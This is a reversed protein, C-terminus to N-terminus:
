GIIIGFLGIISLRRQQELIQIEINDILKEVREFIPPAILYLLIGFVFAGVIYIIIEVYTRNIKLINSKIITDSIVYGLALGAIAMLIRLYKKM